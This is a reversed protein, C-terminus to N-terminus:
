RSGKVPGAAPLMEGMANSQFLSCAELLLPHRVTSMSELPESSSVSTATATEIVLGPLKFGESLTELHERRSGDDRKIGELLESAITNLEGEDMKTAVNADVVSPAAASRFSRDSGDPNETVAVGVQVTTTPILLCRM